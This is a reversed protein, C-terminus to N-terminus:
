IQIWPKLSASVLSRWRNVSLDASGHNASGSPAFQMKTLM